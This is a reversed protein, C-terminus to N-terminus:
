QEGGHCEERSPIFFIGPEDRDGDFVCVSHEDGSFLRFVSNGRLRQIGLVPRDVAVSIARGTKADIAVLGWGNNVAALVLQNDSSIALLSPAIIGRSDDGFITVESEKWHYIINRQHDAVLAEHGGGFFEIASVDGLEAELNLVGDRYRFLAGGSALLLTSADDSVAYAGLPGPLGTLDLEGALTPADPLDTLWRLRNSAGYYLLATRGQPSFRWRDPSSPTPLVEIQGSFPLRVLLLSPGAEKLLLFDQRPAVVGEQTPVGLRFSRGLICAGPIGVIERLTGQPEVIYGLVPPASVAYDRAHAGSALVSMAILWISFPPRPM